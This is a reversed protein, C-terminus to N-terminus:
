PSYVETTELLGVDIFDFEDTTREARSYGVDSGCDL